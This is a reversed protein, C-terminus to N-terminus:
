ATTMKRRLLEGASPITRFLRGVWATTTTKRRLLGCTTRPITRFCGRVLCGGRVLSTKAATRRRPAAPFHPLKDAAIGSRFVVERAVPRMPAMGSRNADTGDHDPRVMDALNDSLLVAVPDDFGTVVPMRQACARTRDGAGNRDAPSSFATFDEYLLMAMKSRGPDRATRKKNQFSFPHAKGPTAINSLPVPRDEPDRSSLDASSKGM